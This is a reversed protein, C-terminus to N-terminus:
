PIYTCIQAEQITRSKKKKLDNHYYLDMSTKLYESPLQAETFHTPMWLTRNSKWMLGVLAYTKQRLFGSHLVTTKSADM